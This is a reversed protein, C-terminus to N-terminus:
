RFTQPNAIPQQLWHVDDLIAASDYIADSSDWIIFQITVTEGPVVPTETQIWGTGGGISSMAGCPSDHGLYGTGMLEASGGACFNFGPTGDCGTPGAVCRDFFNLNVSGPTGQNDFIVNRNN